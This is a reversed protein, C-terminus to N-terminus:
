RPRHYPLLQRPPMLGHFKPQRLGHRVIVVNYRTQELPDAEKGVPYATRRPPNIGKFSVDHEERFCDHKVLMGRRYRGAARDGGGPAPQTCAHTSPDAPWIQTIETEPHLSRHGWIVEIYKALLLALFRNLGYYPTLHPERYVVWVPVPHEPPTPMLSALARDVAPTNIAQDVVDDHTRELEEVYPTDYRDRLHPPDVCSWARGRYALEAAGLVRHLIIDPLNLQRAVAIAQDKGTVIRLFDQLAGDGGGSILVRDKRPDLAGFSDPGWFPQGEYYLHQTTADVVRCNEQGFGTADILAGALLKPGTTFTLGLMEAHPPMGTRVLAINALRTRYRIEPQGPRARLANRLTQQWLVALLDARRTPFPLPLRGHRGWPLTGAVCHAHPWDYQTPNVVRSRALRQTRFPARERDLLLAHVGHRAATLAATVGGAGAGVVALPRHPGICHSGILREVLVVGRLMQDRLSIPEPGSIIFQYPRQQHAALFPDSM